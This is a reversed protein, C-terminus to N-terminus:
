IFAIMAKLYLHHMLLKQQEVIRDGGVEAAVLRGQFGGEFLEVNFQLGGVRFLGGPQLLLSPVRLTDCM